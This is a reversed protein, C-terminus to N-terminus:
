HKAIFLTAECNDGPSAVGKEDLKEFQLDHTLAEAAHKEIALLFQYLDHSTRIESLPLLTIAQPYLILTTHLGSVCIIHACFLGLPMRTEATM